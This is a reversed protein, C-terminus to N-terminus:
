MPPAARGRSTFLAVSNRKKSVLGGAAGGLLAPLVWALGADALPLKDAGLSLPTQRDVLSLLAALLGMLAAGRHINVNAVRRDFFSLLVLSILVPYVLELVPATLSVISSIGLNAIGFSLACSGIVLPGYPLRNGSLERFCEASASTFGIATTVCAGTVILAMVPLGLPGLLAKTLALLLGSRGLKESYVASASAGLYTLGGYVAFLAACALACAAFSVGLRQRPGVYGLRDTMGSVVFSLMLAGLMDMTQYGAELGARLAFATDQAERPAALPRLIGSLLLAALSVLIVPALAKGLVAVLKSRKLCALAVPAIFLASSVWPPVGPFNPRVALEYVAAVTRPVVVLPGMCLAVLSELLLAPPGGLPAAIGAFGRPQRLAALLAAIAMGCEVAIFCLFGSFWQSGTELGLYPPFILNGAGFFMAFVAFGLLAM